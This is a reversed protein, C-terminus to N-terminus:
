DDTPAKRALFNELLEGFIHMFDRESLIGVLCGGEVVPLCAVRHERMLAIAELTPTDPEVSIVDRTMVDSVAIPDRPKGHHRALVRLLNRHTVLGVLQHQNNEVPVHRIHKWDMLSAALDIVDAENVTFLDTTMLSGVRAFHSERPGGGRPEALPWTHIPKGERQHAMTAATLDAMPESQAGNQKLSHFSDLLWRSGTQRSRVRAEVVDLVRDADDGDVGLSRLGERARPILDELLIEPVTGRRGDFWELQADLGRRAAALFNEKAADFRLHQRVDGFDDDLSKIGGLWLAANAVEDVPTPGAPLVRNEIRLHPKGDLVGYCPRNWRYVTGNHLCFAKLKPIGGAALTALSDEEIKTSILLRFRAIDERVIELVSDDIWHEGFSVRPSQHRRHSDHSRTDVSQRFVAIRTESWLRRGFLLPSNTAAALVPAALVQAINYLRAFDRPRVQFHVQFSTNCAEPMVTDHRLSLEDRGKIHFEFDSGRLQRVADSLAAYRPLPTMNDLRLDNKDLTPLIGTLVVDAGVKRAGERAVALVDDIQKELRRLVDGELVLPDLNAELNFRALETTFHPDDIAALAEMAVPAPRMASDVLFMEQEAGIRTVDTEFLHQELMSELVRADDLVQRMFRRLDEPDSERRIKTEGM